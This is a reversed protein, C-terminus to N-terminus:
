LPELFWFINSSPNTFLNKENFRFFYFFFKTRTDWFHESLPLVLKKPNKKEYPCGCNFTPFLKTSPIQSFYVFQLCQNGSSKKLYLDGCLPPRGIHTLPNLFFSCLNVKCPKCTSSMVTPDRGPCLVPIFKKAAEVEEESSEQIIM